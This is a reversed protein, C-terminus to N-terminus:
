RVQRSKLPLVQGRDTTGEDLALARRRWAALVADDGARSDLRDVLWSDTGGHLLPLLPRVSM